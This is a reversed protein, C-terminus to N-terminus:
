PPLCLSRARVQKGALLRPTSDRQRQDRAHDCAIHREEVEVLLQADPFRGDTAALLGDVEELRPELASPDRLELHRLHARFILGDCRLNWRQTLGNGHLLM